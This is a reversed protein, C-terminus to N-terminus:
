SAVPGAAASEALTTDVATVTWSHGAGDLAPDTWTTDTGLGTRDYRVGDRYIRYSAVSDGLDPDGPSATWSLVVAGEPSTSAVLGSPPSPPLNPDNVDLSVSSEGERLAGAPDRDVARVTYLLGGGAVTPPAPDVCSNTTVLPCALTWSGLSPLRYVRYGVIDREPNLNWEAEVVTGNRGAV